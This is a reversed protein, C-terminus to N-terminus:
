DVSELVLCVLSLVEQKKKYNQLKVVSTRNFGGQKRGNRHEREIEGADVKLFTM